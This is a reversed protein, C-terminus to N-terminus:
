ERAEKDLAKFFFYFAQPLGALAKETVPVGVAKVAEGDAFGEDRLPDFGANQILSQVVLGVQSFFRTLISALPPPMQNANCIGITLLCGGRGQDDSTKVKGLNLADFCDNLPYPFPFKPCNRYEVSVVVGRNDKAYRNREALNIWSKPKLLGSLGTSSVEVMHSLSYVPTRHQISQSTSKQTGSHHWRVPINIHEITIDRGVVPRDDVVAPPFSNWAAKFYEIDKIAYWEDVLKVAEPIRVRIGGNFRGGNDWAFGAYETNREAEHM